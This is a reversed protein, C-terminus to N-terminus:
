KETPIESKAKGIEFGKGLECENVPIFCGSYGNGEYPSECRCEYGCTTSSCVANQHCSHTGDACEDESFSEFDFCLFSFIEFHGDEPHGSPPSKPEFDRDYAASDIYVFDVTTEPLLESQMFYYKQLISSYQISLPYLLETSTIDDNVLEPDHCTYDYHGSSQVRAKECVTVYDPYNQWDSYYVLM